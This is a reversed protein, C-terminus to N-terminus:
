RPKAAIGLEKRLWDTADDLLKYPLGDDASYNKDALITAAQGLFLTRMQRFEKSQKLTQSGTKRLYKFPKDPVGDEGKMRTWDCSINDIKSSQEVGNKVKITQQLLPKGRENTFWLEPDNSMADDLAKVTEPWLKYNVLPPNPHRKTKPRRHILRTNQVQHKKLTAIDIQTYACNLTLLIIAKWRVDVSALLDKIESKTFMLTAKPATSTDFTFSASKLNGPLVLTETEDQEVTWRVWARFSRQINRKRTGGCTKKDLETYVKRVAAKNVLNMPLTPTLIREIEKLDKRLEDATSIARAGSRAQGWKFKLFRDIAKAVTDGETDGTLVALAAGHFSPDAKVMKALDDARTDWLSSPLIYRSEQEETRQHSRAFELLAQEYGAASNAGKFYYVKGSIKKKWRDRWWSLQLKIGRTRQIESGQVPM